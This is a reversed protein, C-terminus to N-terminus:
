DVTWHFQQQLLPLIRWDIAKAKLTTKSRGDTFDLTLLSDNSNYLYDLIQNQGDYDTLKLKKTKRDIVIQYDTMEDAQDQFILFGDRHFFFRKVFQQNSKLTEGNSVISKVEYAGHLLPRTALDDQFNLTRLYPLLTEILMVVIILCKLGLHRLNKTQIEMSNPESVWTKLVLISWVKKVIPFALFGNIFLLFGSLLKVSIDFSLNVAFVNLLVGFSILLGLNRTQKILILIAPIVEAFGMFLNYSYSSGMTSWYLIDKDLKGLPTYLLNPEPLYFQAKFIKDFGYKLLLLSLYYVALTQVLSIIKQRNIESTFKQLLFAILHSFLIFILVLFYLRKSDSSFDFLDVTQGFLESTWSVLDTFIFTTVTTQFSFLNWTFPIFLMGLSIFISFYLKSFGKM